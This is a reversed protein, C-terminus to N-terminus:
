NDNSFGRRLEDRVESLTGALRRSAAIARSLNYHKEGVEPGAQQLIGPIWGVKEPAETALFTAAARRFDHLGMQKGFGRDTHLRAIAYLRGPSLACGQNSAWLGDHQRQRLLGPRVENLYCMFYPVLRAHLPCREPRNSKTDEARLLVNVRSGHMEIHGSVTLAALSRRRLPWCSLFALFLGDRYQLERQRTPGSDADEMLRVGYDLTLWGPVLKHFRDEPVAGSRLRSAIVALWDWGRAPDMFQAACSLGELCIASSVPKVTKGLHDVFARVLDRTIRDAPASALEDPYDADIFGLWRRYATMIMKRTGPAFHAGGGGTEDFVDGPAYAAHFGAMDAAPIRDIPLHKRQRM